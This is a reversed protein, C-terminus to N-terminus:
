LLKVEHDVIGIRHIIPHENGGDLHACLFTQGDYGAFVMGHGVNYLPLASKSQRYPGFAYSSAYAVGIEYVGKSDYSSWLLAKVGDGEFAFPGDTVKIKAGRAWAPYAAWEADDSSFLLRSEGIPRSLDDSLPISRITGVGIQLWEHCYLLYPKGDEYVLTGDLCEQDPPTLKTGYPLFPGLPSSSILGQCGRERGLNSFTAVMWYRGEKLRYVEPAWFDRNGWFSKLASFVTYPGEWEDLDSSVYAKFTNDNTTGYLYYRGGDPLIFPDRIHIHELKM